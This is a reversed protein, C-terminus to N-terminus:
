GGLYAKKVEPASRLEAASGALVVRGVEVVYARDCHALAKAVNQEALLVSTGGAVIGHLQRLVEDVLKPSLGLSPEDLLLLRPRGMLARSIALMQQQGGSLQWGLAERREALQPFLSFAYDVRRVRERRGGSAAVELNEQVTLGPFVRRGEPAYGIGLRVRREPSLGQLLRGAFRITGRSPTLFGVIAKFLTSKGAGNAGVLAVAEGAGVVLSVDRLATVTRYAVGLDQVELLAASDGANPAPPALAISM